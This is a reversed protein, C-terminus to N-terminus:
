EYEILVEADNLATATAGTDNMDRVVTIGIGSGFSIGGGAIPVDRHLGAQIGASYAIATVGATPTSTADHLKIFIPLSSNNYGRIARLTGPTGKIVEPNTTALTIKRYKSVAGAASLSTLHGGTSGVIAVTIANHAGAAIATAGRHTGSVDVGVLGAVPPTTSGTPQFNTAIHGGTSNVMAVTQAVHSGAEIGTLSRLTGGVQVDNGDGGDDLAVITAVINTASGLTVSVCRSRFYLCPRSAGVWLVQGDTHATNVHTAITSYNTGDLSGEIVVNWATAAAGTGKVQIAFAALGQASVDVATGNAATTYTDARSHKDIYDTASGDVGVSRKMRQYHVGGIDDTAITTGVGATVAVGDAM